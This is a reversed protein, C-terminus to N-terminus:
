KYSLKGGSNKDSKALGERVDGFGGSGLIETKFDDTWECVFDFPVNEPKTLGRRASLLSDVVRSKALDNLVTRPSGPTVSPPLSPTPAVSPTPINPVIRHSAEYQEIAEKLDAAHGKNCRCNDVWWKVPEGRANLLLKKMSSVGDSLLSKTYEICADEVVEADTEPNSAKLVKLM